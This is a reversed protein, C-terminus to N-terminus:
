YNSFLILSCCYVSLKAKQTLKGNFDKILKRLEMRRLLLLFQIQPNSVSVPPSSFSLSTMPAIVKILIAASLPFVCFIHIFILQFGLSQLFHVAVSFLSPQPLHHLHSLPLPLIVYWQLSNVIHYIPQLVSRSFYGFLSDKKTRIKTYKSQARLNVGYIEM